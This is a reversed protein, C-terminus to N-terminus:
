ELHTVKAKKLRKTWLEPFETIDDLYRCAILPVKRRGQEWLSVTQTTVGLFVALLAQSANLKERIAKIDAPGYRRPDIELKATRVTFHREIPEGSKIVDLIKQLGAIMSEGGTKREPISEADEARMRAIPKKTRTDSRKSM